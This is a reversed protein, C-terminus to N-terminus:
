GATLSEVSLGEPGLGLTLSVGEVELTLSYRGPLRMSARVSRLRRGALSSLAGNVGDLAHVLALGSPLRRLVAILVREAEARGLERAKGTQLALELVRELASVEEPPVGGARAASALSTYRSRLEGPVAAAYADLVLAVIEREDASLEVVGQGPEPLLNGGSARPTPPVGGSM